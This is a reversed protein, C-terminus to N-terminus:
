GEEKNEEKKEEEEKNAPEEEEEEDLLNEDDYDKKADGNKREKNRMKVYINWDIGKFNKMIKIYREFEKFIVEFAQAILHESVNEDIVSQAKELTPISTGRQKLKMLTGTDPKIIRGVTLLFVQEFVDIVEKTLKKENENSVVEQKLPRGWSKKLKNDKKGNGEHLTRFIDLNRLSAHDRALFKWKLSNLIVKIESEENTEKM